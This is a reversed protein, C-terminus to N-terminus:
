KSYKELFAAQDFEPDLATHHRLNLEILAALNWLAHAIHLCGTEQDYDEGKRYKLMHRLTASLYESDEKGGKIWNRPAYKVAGQEFVRTLAELALPLDLLFDMEPKGTNDRLAVDAM